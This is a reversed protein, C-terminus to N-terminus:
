AGNRRRRRIKNLGEKIAIRSYRGPPVRGSLIAILHERSLGCLAAFAARSVGSKSILAAAGRFDWADQARIEMKRATTTM